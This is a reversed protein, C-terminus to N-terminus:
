SKFLEKRGKGGGKRGGVGLGEVERGRELKGGELKGGEREKERERKGGGRWSWLVIAGFLAPSKAKIKVSPLPTGAGERAPDM